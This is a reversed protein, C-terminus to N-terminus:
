LDVLKREFTMIRVCVFVCGVSQVVQVVSTFYLVGPCKYLEKLCWSCKEFRESIVVCLKVQLCAIGAKVGWGCLMVARQRTSM